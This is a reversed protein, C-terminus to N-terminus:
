GSRAAGPRLRRARLETAIYLVLALTLPLLYYILRYTLLAALLEHGPARASLLTLFVAELVGLGAPVHTLVGAVAALMLVSAVSAFDLGAPMLTYVVASLLLWNGSGMVAQLLAMRGSPLDIQHGRLQLRRTRARLCLGLYVGALALLAAGLASLGAGSIRWGPPLALPYWVFLVGALLLYGLWSTAFSLGVIRGVQGLKLGLRLYLRLRLAFAGVLSGLNLNFVYSIFAVGMVTRAPLRHGTYRRGLLDFSSYLLFSAVALGACVALTAPPYARVSALVEAWDMSRAQRWLLWGVGVLFAVLLARRAWTWAVSRPPVEHPLPESM